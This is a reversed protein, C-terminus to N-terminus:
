RDKFSAVPKARSSKKVQKMMIRTKKAYRPIEESFPQESTEMTDMNFPKPTNTSVRTNKARSVSSQVKFKWFDESDIPYFLM